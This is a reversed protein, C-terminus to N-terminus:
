RQSPSKSPTPKSEPPGGAPAPADSTRIGSAKRAKLADSRQTLTKRGEESGAWAAYGKKEAAYADNCKKNQDEHRDAWMQAM